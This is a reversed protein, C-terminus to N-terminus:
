PKELLSVQVIFFASCQLISAKSSHHQLLSKLTGQVVLLDFWDMRFSILGSYENPPSTSFSFSWYKPWKIHLVSENSFVRISPFISPLLILPHCHILHNTPMVSEISMLKLLSWSKIISLSVQRAVTWSTASLQVCILLQISSIRFTLHFSFFFLLSLSSPLFLPFSLFLKPVERAAWHNVSWVKGRPVM